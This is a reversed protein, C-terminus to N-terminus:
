ATGKPQSNIDSETSTRNAFAVTQMLGILAQLPSQIPGFELQARKEPTLRAWEENDERIKKLGKEAEGNVEDLYRGLLAKEPEQEPAFDLLRKYEDSKKNQGQRDVVYRFERLAVGAVPFDSLPALSKAALGSTELLYGKLLEVIRYPFKSSVAGTAMAELVGDYIDLGGSDWKAGWEITEGSRKMLTVAVASRGLQKKARKEAAQAARVVDQLPSKFHAIAIGVSCDAAPGPVLFPIAQQRQDSIDLRRLFGPAAADLLGEDAALKQFYPASSPGPNRGSETEHMSLLRKAYAALFEKLSLDGQFAKQLARACDLATDAPLMAVVDDGGAYLLRGDFVEVIPRACLLAFNGLAESFQLHYSPSVLRRTQLLNAFRDILNGSGDPDSCRKFYELSGQNQSKGTDTYNAFQTAYHPAKDGSVWQGISDGDLALVAFYKGGPAEDPALELNDEADNDFPHHRAISRTNPMRYESPRAALSKEEALWTLHWVRKVLTIAGVEDDYKFLRPWDGDLLNAVKDAFGSGGFLMEERGTLADKSQVVGTEQWGGPSWADFARTQRVADLAWHSLATLLAWGLGINNLTDKPGKDGGAYYRPDRHEKPMFDTAAKVVTDFRQLLTKEGHQPEEAPLLEALKKAEDFSKPWPLAHWSVKLFRDTQDIFRQRAKAEERLQPPGLQLLGSHAVKRWVSDRIKHWEECVATAVLEGLQAADGQPVIALFVNPLNPTLLDLDPNNLANKRRDCRARERLTEWVSRSGIRVCNWLDDRWQLDFLPQGRLNPYIIADPGVEASLAKLGAAMLWSLLYSGSWIDRTSRAQAIFEQVPGLQFKLFAPRLKAERLAVIWKEPHTAASPDPLDACGALAAVVANHTWITHDPLRTDAPIFAFRADREAAFYPWLRWHAFFRARWKQEETWNHPFDNLIPQITQEHEELEGEIADYGTIEQGQPFRLVSPPGNKSSGLPHHFGARVGDFCCMLGSSRSAPFPFRDASSATFDAQKAYARLEEESFGAARLARESRQDHTSLDICKSPPDHLYAALKHKWNLM